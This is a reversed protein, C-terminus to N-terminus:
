LECLEEEHLKRLLQGNKKIIDDTVTQCRIEAPQRWGVESTIFYEQVNAGARNM